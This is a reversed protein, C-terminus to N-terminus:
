NVFRVSDSRDTWWEDAADSVMDLDWTMFSSSVYMRETSLSHSLLLLSNASVDPQNNRLTNTPIFLVCSTLHSNVLSRCVGYWVVPQIERSM